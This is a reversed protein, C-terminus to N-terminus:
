CANEARKRLDFVEAIGSGGPSDRGTGASKSEQLQRLAAGGMRAVHDAERATARGAPTDPRPNNPGNGNPKERRLWGLFTQDWDSKTTVARNSNSRCWIRMDEAKVDVATRDMGRKAGEAYHIEKPIWDPPIKSGGAKKKREKKSVVVSLSEEERLSLPPKDDSTPHIDPPDPPHGRKNKRYERDWARRREATEDVPHRTSALAMVYMDVALVIMEKPMCNQLMDAVTRGLDTKM